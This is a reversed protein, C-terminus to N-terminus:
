YEDISEKIIDLDDKTIDLDIFESALKSRFIRNKTLQIEAKNVKVILDEIMVELENIEEQNYLYGYIQIYDVLRTIENKYLNIRMEEEAECVYNSILLARMEVIEESNDKNVYTNNM